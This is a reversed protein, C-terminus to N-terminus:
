RTMKGHNQGLVNQMPGEFYSVICDLTKSPVNLIFILIFIIRVLYYKQKVKAIEIKM